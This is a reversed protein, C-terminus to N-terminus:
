VDRLIEARRAAAEAANVLGKAELDALARLRDEVSSPEHQEPGKLYTAAYGVEGGFLVAKAAENPDLGRKAAMQRASVVKVVTTGIGILLVVVFFVVFLDAGPV